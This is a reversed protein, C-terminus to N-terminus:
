LRRGTVMKQKNRTLKLYENKNEEGLENQSTELSVSLAQWYLFLGKVLRHCPRHFM